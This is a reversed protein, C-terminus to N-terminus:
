AFEAKIMPVLDGIDGAGVVLVVAPEAAKVAGALAEKELVRAKSMKAALAESTIGEM